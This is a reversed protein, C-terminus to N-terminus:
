NNLQNRRQRRFVFVGILAGSMDVFTDFIDDLGAPSKISILQIAEQLISIGLAVSVVIIPSILKNKNSFVLSILWALVAYLFIHMVVHIIGSKFAWDFGTKYLHSFKRM